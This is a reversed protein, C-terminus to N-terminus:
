EEINSLLLFTEYKVTWKIEFSIGEKDHQISDSVIDVNEFVPVEKGDHKLVVEELPTKIEKDIYGLRPDFSKGKLSMSLTKKQSGVWEAHLDLLVANEPIANLIKPIAKNWFTRGEGISAIQDLKKKIGNYTKETKKYRRELNATTNYTELGYNSVNLLRKNQILQGVWLTLVGALIVMSAFMVIKKKGSLAIERAFEEPILNLGIKELAFGQIALGMPVILRSINKNFSDSDVLGSIEINNKSLVIEKLKYGLSQSIYTKKDEQQSLTGTIILHKIEMEKVLSKYYGVSRKIEDIFNTGMDTTPINRMWIKGSNIIMLNTNEHGIELIMTPQIEIENFLLFNYLSISSIQIATLNDKLAQFSSLFTYVDDKKIAFIGVEVEKGPAANDDLAHFDWIIQSIDIPIHKEVEFMVINKLQSKKVLPLNVFRSLVFQGPLAILVKDSSNIQNRTLFLTLAKKVLAVLDKINASQTSTKPPENDKDVPFQKFQIKPETEVHQTSDSDLESYKVTDFAEVVLQGKGKKAVKIVNVCTEEIYIGWISKKSIKGPMNLIDYRLLKKKIDPLKM